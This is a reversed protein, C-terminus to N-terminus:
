PTDPIVSTDIRRGTYSLSCSEDRYIPSEDPWHDEYHWMFTVTGSMSDENIILESTGGESQWYKGYGGGDFEDTAEHPYYQLRITDEYQTWEGKVQPEEQLEQMESEVWVGNKDLNEYETSYSSFTGDRHFEFISHGRGLRSGYYTDVCEEEVQMDWKGIVSNQSYQQEEQLFADKTDTETIEQSWSNTEYGDASISFSWTGPFGTITVYGSSSSTQDFSNSLGDWGTVRAGPIIPGSASGDHIYLTLIIDQDQEQQLFADKFDNETIDQDWNSTEYGAASVSFYWTGPDGEINVYGSSDTTQQFSNGSGDLGTVQAGPIIPGSASGDHVYLTLTVPVSEEREQESQAQQSIDLLSKALAMTEKIQADTTGVPQGYRSKGTDPDAISAWEKAMNKQFQYDSIKGETWAEYGRKELLSLGFLEQTAADFPTNDSLGLTNQQEVLTTSILQYKGVASSPLKSNAQNALMQKQLQKVEGITMETLPKSDNPDYIGYAYTIDYASALGHEQAAADTTGEGIAIRDLLTAAASDYQQVDIGGAVYPFLMTLLLMFVLSQIRLASIIM